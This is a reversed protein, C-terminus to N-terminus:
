SAAIFQCVIALITSCDKQHWYGDQVNLVACDGSSTTKGWNSYGWPTGDSWSWSNNGSLTKTAGIWYESYLLNENRLAGILLSQTFADPISALHFDTGPPLTNTQGCQYEGDHWGYFEQDYYCMSQTSLSFTWDPCNNAMSFAFLFSFILFRM